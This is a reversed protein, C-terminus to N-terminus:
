EEEEEEEEDDDRDCIVGIEYNKTDHSWSMSKIDITEYYRGDRTIVVQTEDIAEIAKYIERMDELFSEREEEDDYNELRPEVEERYFSDKDSAYYNYYDDGYDDSTIELAGYTIGNNRVWLQWGDRKEFTTVRLGYENALSEAEEYTSFGIIANKLNRPYGGLDTTTEIIDLGSEYAVADIDFKKM